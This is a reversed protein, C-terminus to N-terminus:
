LDDNAARLQSLLKCMHTEEHRSMRSQWLVGLLLLVKCIVATIRKGAKRAVAADTRYLPEPLLKRRKLAFVPLRRYTLSVLYTTMFGSTQEDPLSPPSSFFFSSYVCMDRKRFIYVRNYIIEFRSYIKTYCVSM